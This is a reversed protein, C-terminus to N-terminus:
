PAPVEQALLRERLPLTMRVTTGRGARQEVCLAGGIEEARERMSVLGVGRGRDPGAGSGDDDVELQLSADGNRTVRLSAQDADAHRVVNTLAEQAVRYVAVEVAAPLAPLSGVDVEVRLGAAAALDVAMRELAGALGQEDLAPPRLGEVVRRVDAVAGQIGTRLRLLGEEVEAARPDVPSQHAAERGAGWLNRLTDVQLTLAALTPGLGDHLDRRLRRREEERALVLREQGERIRDALAASHVVGGLQLAVDGLLDRDSSRLRRSSHRLVGVPVGYATLPIETLPHPPAGAETHRALVRARADLVEVHALGLGDALERVLTHLLGPLDAADALRRGTASLVAAPEAWQGYTVRTVMQQLANRLPAFSVAVVGAAVWPLWSAGQERLLVGVGGVTLAYLGAVAGSLLLYVLGRSVVLQIDYLRRQLLAIGIAVPVPLSVAAFMWPEAWPTAVVPILLLPAAFAVAFWLLRQQDLESGARWRRLLGSVVLVLAVATLALASLALVEVLPEWAAPLGIPNSESELRYELPTPSVLMALTFLAVVSAVVLGPTRRGPWATRGDPFYLPVALALVLWGLGRTAAGLVGLVMAAPVSGPETVAGEVGLALVGEGVGWCASGALLLLGVKNGPRALVIVAAVVAYTAVVLLIALRDLHGPEGAGLVVALVAGSPGVLAVPVTRAARAPSM